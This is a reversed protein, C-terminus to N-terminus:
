AIFDAAFLSRFVSMLESGLAGLKM